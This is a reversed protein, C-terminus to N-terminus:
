TKDEMEVIFTVPNVMNIRESRYKLLRKDTTIFYRCGSLIACSVHCADMLKIGTSMIEGAMAKVNSDSAESVYTHTYRDIFAQIIKGSAWLDTLRTKQWWSIPHHWFFGEM